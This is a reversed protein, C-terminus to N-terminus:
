LTNGGKSVNLFSALRNLGQNGRYAPISGSYVDRLLATLSQRRETCATVSGYILEDMDINVEAERVVGNSLTYVIARHKGRECSIRIAIRVGGATLTSMAEKDVVEPLGCRIDVLAYTSDYLLWLVKM